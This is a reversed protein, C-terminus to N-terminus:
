NITKTCIKSLQITNCLLNIRVSIYSYFVRIVMQSSNYCTFSLKMNKWCKIQLSIFNCINGACKRYNSMRIEFNATAPLVSTGLRIEQFLWYLSKKAFSFAYLNIFDPDKPLAQQMYKNINSISFPIQIADM